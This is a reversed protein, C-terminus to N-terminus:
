AAALEADLAAIISDGARRAGAINRSAPGLALEALPGTVYIDPHWRCMEDVVPYGCPALPLSASKILADIMQGGPRATSFGTALIVRDVQQRTNDTFVLEVGDSRERASAIEREHHM